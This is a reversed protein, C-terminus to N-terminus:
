CLLQFRQHNGGSILLLKCGMKKPLNLDLLIIDYDGNSENFKDVGEEGDYAFTAEWQEKKFFMAMMASVSNNDEIMLIKMTDSRINM